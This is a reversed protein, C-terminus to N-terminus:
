ILVSQSAPPSPMLHVCKSPTRPPCRIFADPRHDWERLPIVVRIDSESGEGSFTLVAPSPLRFQADRTVQRTDGRTLMDGQTFRHTSQATHNCDDASSKAAAMRHTLNVHSGNLPQPPPDAASRRSCLTRMAHTKGDCRPDDAGTGGSGSKWGLTCQASAATGTHATPQAPSTSAGATPQGRKSGRRGGGKGGGAQEGERARACACVRLSTPPAAGVKSGSGSAMMERTRARRSGVGSLGCFPGSPRRASPKEASKSLPGVIKPFRM